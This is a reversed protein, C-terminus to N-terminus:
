GSFAVSLVLPVVIAISTAALARSWPWRHVARVGIALLAISWLLFGLSLLDFVAGGAGRDGGGTRFWAEGYLALKVPWLVLSLALPVAAFGVVHRARRYTGQSGFFRGAWYLIAGIAFYAFGGTIGGALFVWLLLDVGDRSTDDLYTGADALIVAIGALWVVLLIPESMDGAAEKSDDRLAAFVPRPRQLVLLSRLWWDRM